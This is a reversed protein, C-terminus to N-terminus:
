RAGAAKKKAKGNAGNRGNRRVYGNGWNAVATIRRLEEALARSIEESNREGRAVRSVYSPDIKLKRAVRSYVGRFLSPLSPPMTQSVTGTRNM